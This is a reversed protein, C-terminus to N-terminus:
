HEGLGSNDEAIEESKAEVNSTVEAPATSSNLGLLDAAAARALETGLNGGFQKALSAAQNFKSMDPVINGNSTIILSGSPGVARTTFWLAEGTTDDERYYDGQISKFEALAKESGKVVYVFTPNGAKSVYERKYNIKLM